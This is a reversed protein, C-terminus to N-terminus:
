LATLQSGQALLPHLLAASAPLLPCLLAAPGGREGADMCPWVRRGARQVQPHDTSSAALADAILSEPATPAVLRHHLQKFFSHRQVAEVPLAEEAATRPKPHSDTGRPAVTAGHPVASVDLRAAAAQMAAHAQFCLRRWLDHLVITTRCRWCVLEVLALQEPSLLKFIRALVEDQARTHVSRCRRHCHPRAAAAAAALHLPPRRAAGSPLPTLGLPDPRRSLPQPAPMFGHVHRERKHRWGAGMCSVWIIKSM